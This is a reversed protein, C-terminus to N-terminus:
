DGSRFYNPVGVGVADFYQSDADSRWLSVDQGELIVTCGDEEVRIEYQKGLKELLDDASTVFVNIGDISFSGHSGSALEIFEVTDNEPAFFVTISGDFFAFTESSSAPTKRFAHPPEDFLRCVEERSM